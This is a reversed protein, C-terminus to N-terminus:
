FLFKPLTGMENVCTLVRWQICKVSYEESLMTWWFFSWARRQHSVKGCHVFRQLAILWGDFLASIQSCYLHINSSLQKRKLPFPNLFHILVIAPMHGCSIITPYNVTNPLRNLAGTFSSRHITGYAPQTPFIPLIKLSTSSTKQSSAWQLNM